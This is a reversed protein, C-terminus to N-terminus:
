PQLNQVTKLKELEAKWQKVGEEDDMAEKLQILSQVAYTRNKTVMAAAQPSSSEVNALGEFVTIFDSEAEDYKEIRLLAEESRIKPPM